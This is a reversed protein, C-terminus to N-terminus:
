QNLSVNHLFQKRERNKCESWDQSGSLGSTGSLFWASRLRSDSWLARRLTGSCVCAMMVPAAGRAVM